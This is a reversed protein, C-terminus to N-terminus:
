IWAGYNMEYLADFYKEFENTIISGHQPAIIKIPLKVMKDVASQMARKSGFYPETFAKVAEIYHKDAFILATKLPVQECAKDLVMNLM